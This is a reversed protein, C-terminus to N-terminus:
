KKGISKIIRQLGRNWDPFLDQYQIKSLKEFPIQCDDIRIPIIFIQDEPIEELTDIGLRFERQVYGRKEVSRSSFMPLFFRCKKVAKKIEKDWNQGPLLEEKDLWPNLEGNKLDIYLRNAYDFDERAYSIFILDNKNKVATQKDNNNVITNQTENDKVQVSENLNNSFTLILSEIKELINRSISIFLREDLSSQQTDGLEKNERYSQRKDRLNIFLRNLSDISVQGIRDRYERYNQGNLLDNVFSVINGM